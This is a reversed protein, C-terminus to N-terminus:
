PKRIYLGGPLQEALGKIELELLHGLLIGTALGTATALEDASKPADGSLAELVQRAAGRLNHPPSPFLNGSVGDPGREKTGPMERMARPLVDLIDQVGRVPTAGDYILDNCGESTRSTIPGPVACVPLGMEDAALMATILSGSDKAAEVVIVAASMSAIIRNRVPFHHARPGSGFPFETLLAGASAVRAFLRTNEKPYVVDIGSGLVGITRGEAELAGRHAQSDIGRALGSVITFGAEALDFGLRYAVGLGYPSAKRSGVVAVAAADRPLLQGRVYLFPPADSLHRLREPYEADEYTVVTVGARESSRNEKDAWAPFTGSFIARADESRLPLAKELDEASGALFAVPDTQAPRLCRKFRPHTHLLLGFAMWGLKREEM